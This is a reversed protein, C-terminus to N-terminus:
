AKLVLMIMILVTMMLVTAEMTVMLTKRLKVPTMEVLKSSHFNSAPHCM